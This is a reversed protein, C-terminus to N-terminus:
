IRMNELQQFTRGRNINDYAKEIVFFIAVMERKKLAM